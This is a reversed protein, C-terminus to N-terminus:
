SKALMELLEGYKSFLHRTRARESVKMVIAWGDGGLYERAWTRPPVDYDASPDDCLVMEKFSFIAFCHNCYVAAYGLMAQFTGKGCCYCIYKRSEPM